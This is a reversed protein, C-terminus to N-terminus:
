AGEEALREAARAADVDLYIVYREIMRAGARHDVPSRQEVHAGGGSEESM